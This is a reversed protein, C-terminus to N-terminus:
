KETPNLRATTIYSHLRKVTRRNPLLESEDGLASGYGFPYNATWLTLNGLKTWYGNVDEVDAKEDMLENLKASLIPCARTDRILPYM